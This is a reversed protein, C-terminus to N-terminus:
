DWYEDQTMNAAMGISSCDTCVLDGAELVVVSVGRETLRTALYIGAAGAGLICVDATVVTRGDQLNQIHVTKM